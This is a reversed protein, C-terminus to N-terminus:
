EPLSLSIYLQKKSNILDDGVEVVKPNKTKQKKHNKQCKYAWCLM